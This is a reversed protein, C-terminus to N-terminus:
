GRSLSYLRDVIGWRITITCAIASISLIVAAEILERLAEQWLQKVPKKEDRPKGYQNFWFRWERTSRPVIQLSKDNSAASSQANARSAHSSLFPVGVSAMEMSACSPSSSQNRSSWSKRRFLLPIDGSTVHVM